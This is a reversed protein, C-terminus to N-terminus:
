YWDPVADLYTRAEAASLPRIAPKEHPPPLSIM